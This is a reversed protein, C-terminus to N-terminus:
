STLSGVAEREKVIWSDQRSELAIVWNVVRAMFMTSAPHMGTYVINIPCGVAGHLPGTLPPRMTLTVAFGERRAIPSQNDSVNEVGQDGSFSIVPTPMSTVKEAHTTPVVNYVIEDISHTGHRSMLGEDRVSGCLNIRGLLVDYLNVDSFRISAFVLCAICQVLANTSPAVKGQAVKSMPTYPLCDDARWTLHRHFPHTSPFISSTSPVTIISHHISM